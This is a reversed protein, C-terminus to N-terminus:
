ALCLACDCVYNNSYFSLFALALEHAYQLFFSIKVFFWNRITKEEVYFSSSSSLFRHSNATSVLQKRKERASEKRTHMTHSVCKKLERHSTFEVM